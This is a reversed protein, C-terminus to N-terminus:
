RTVADDFSTSVAFSFCLRSKSTSSMQAINQVVTSFGFYALLDLHVKIRLANDLKVLWQNRKTMKELVVKEAVVVELWAAKSLVFEFSVTENSASALALFKEQVLPEKLM